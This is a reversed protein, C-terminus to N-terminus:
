WCSRAAFIHRTNLINNYFKFLKEDSLKKNGCFIDFQGMAAM